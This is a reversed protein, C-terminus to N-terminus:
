AFLSYLYISQIPGSSLTFKEYKQSLDGLYGWFSKWPELIELKPVRGCVTTLKVNNAELPYILFNLKM